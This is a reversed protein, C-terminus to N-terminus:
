KDYRLSNCIWLLAVLMLLCFILMFVGPIINRTWNYITQNYEGNIRRYIGKNAFRILYNASIIALGLYSIKQTIGRNKKHKVLSQDERGLMEAVEFYRFVFLFHGFYYLMNTLTYCFNNFLAVNAVWTTTPEGRCKDNEAYFYKCGMEWNHLITTLVSFFAALFM